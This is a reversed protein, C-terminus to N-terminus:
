GRVETEYYSQYRILLCLHLDSVFDTSGIYTCLQENKNLNKDRRITILSAAKSPTRRGM